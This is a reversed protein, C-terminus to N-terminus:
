HGGDRRTLFVKYMIIGAAVSANLSQIQGAMPITVTGDLLKVVGPSIGKGENGIVIAIPGGANWQTFDEGNVATGFVWVGQKKLSEIARSLNTVRAVPVRSIAGASAKAVTGTLLAARHKGIIVGHVGAADATRIISGLNHPDEVNDLVVIFPPQGAAKAKALIDDITAYPFAALAVVVGQHNQGQVLDDLKAKPVRSVLVHLRKTLNLIQTAFEKQVSDQLFVKNVTQEEASQLAAIAPHRGFVLDEDISPTPKNTPKNTM